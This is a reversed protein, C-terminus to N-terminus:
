EEQTNASYIGNDRSSEMWEIDGRQRKFIRFTAMGREHHCQCSSVELYFTTRRSKNNNCRSFPDEKLAEM